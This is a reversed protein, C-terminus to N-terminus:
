LTGGLNWPVFEEEGVGQAESKSEQGSAVAIVLDLLEAAAQQMDAGDLVKGANFDMDDTMHEYMTTNTAVKISPAPKYGFVSGRGTTFVILNCGGAVQGTASVPDYGPTDVFTFGRTTIPAAYDFVDMLPTSGGKAVAGLSKELITTLGGVKNGASPNNDIEMNHKRAHDEWWHVKAILKEGVERNIARRTLLHEAGYIEPTEALVGSGGQRVIEDVVLGLLPNATVGSWGDSGGCQLAVMLESIPQPTRGTANVVPLLQEVLEIGRQITKKIGGEGQITLNLPLEGQTGNLHYNDMIDQIQNTECGLGIMMYAGVNPHRAMGAITRQVIAYDDGGLRLGCGLGHTLAIVGDVNPYAALKEPTFYHAIERITHASCNVSAIIAIYNRTGVRGDARKFGMFTRRQDEPVFEVPTVGECFAYDRTFNEFEMNHTHIHDGPQIPQTAFGIIQGYRRIPAGKEIVNIAIKHGSPIFRNIPINPAGERKLIVGPSIPTKAIVVDDMPNLQVTIQQIPVAGVPTDFFRIQGSTM